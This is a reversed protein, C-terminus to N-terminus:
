HGQFVATTSTSLLPNEGCLFDSGRFRSTCVMGERLKGTELQLPHSPADGHGWPLGNPSYPMLRHTGTGDRGSPRKFPPLALPRGREEDTFHSDLEPGPGRAAPEPCSLVCIGSCKGPLVIRVSRVQDIGNLPLDGGRGTGTRRRM